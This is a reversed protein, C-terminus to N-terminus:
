RNSAVPAKVRASPNIRTPPNKPRCTNPEDAQNNVNINDIGTINIATPGANM